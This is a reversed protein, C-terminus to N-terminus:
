EVVHIDENWLQPNEAVFKAMMQKCRPDDMLIVKPRYGCGDGAALVSEAFSSFNVNEGVIVVPIKYLMTAGTCM